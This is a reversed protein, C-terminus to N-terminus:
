QVVIRKVLVLDDTVIRALYVGPALHGVHLPFTQRAMHRLNSTLVTQANLSTLVIKVDSPAPLDFHFFLIDAVPNPYIQVANRLTTASTSLIMDVNITDSLAICGNEDTVELVYRGASLGTLDERNSIITGNHMWSFSHAGTGGSVTVSIAGNMDTLIEHIVTDVVITIPQPQGVMVTATTSCGAADTVTVTYSGAPLGTATQTTQNDPDSWSYSFPAMGGAPMATASGDAFGFCSAPTSGVDTSFGNDITVTFSCTDANNAADTAQWVVVTTGSPFIGGSPQGSVLQVMPPACNDDGSPPDYNIIEECNNSQVTINDPCTITPDINDVVTVTASDFACNNSLDAVAVVVKNEGLHDCSFSTIDAILTDIGCNDTSGNDLMNATIAAMGNADLEITINQLVVVPPLTDPDLGVEYEMTHTCDNSDTITVSYTGSAVSDLVPGSTGNSWLFDYGPTGGNASLEISGDTSHDCGANTITAMASLQAPQTVEYSDTASCGDAGTVTVSYSAATLSNITATTSDNSWLYTIPMTFGSAMATASGDNGGFCSVPTGTTTISTGTCAFANVTTCGEITCDNFDSVTVCYQGPALNTLSSTTAGTNWSYSYGGVGGGATATATGDNAGLATEDTSTLNLELALPEGIIVQLTATCNHADTATVFYNNAPLGSRAPGTGGDSWNYAYDPTGGSASVTVAGTSDGHCAVGSISVGMVKLEDPETVNVTLTGTCGMMDTTTVTYAGATLNQITDGMAGNSWSFSYGGSNGGTAGVSIAGDNAGNCSVHTLSTTSVAISDPQDITVMLVESCGAAESVTVSYSGAMLNTATATTQGDSWAYSYPMMGGSPIATASGDSGGYCSVSMASVSASFGTCDFSHVTGMGTTTCDNADTITVTYTGP